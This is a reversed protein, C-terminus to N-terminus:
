RNNSTDKSPSPLSVATGLPLVQMQENASLPPTKNTCQDTTAAVLNANPVIDTQEVVKDICASQNALENAASPLIVTQDGEKTPGAHAIVRPSHVYELIM